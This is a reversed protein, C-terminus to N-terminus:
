RSIAVVDNSCCDRLKDYVEPMVNICGLTIAVRELRRGSTLREFRKQQPELLWVRHIAYVSSVGEEFILVDGGYGAAKTIVHELKFKGVPTDPGVLAPYCQNLFCISAAALNVIIMNGEARFHSIEGLHSM